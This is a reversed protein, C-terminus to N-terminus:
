EDLHLLIARGIDYIIKRHTDSLDIRHESVKLMIDTTETIYRRKFSDDSFALDQVNDLRDCLKIVLAWSSMNIMKNSLYEVKGIAKQIEFNSTLEQVLKAIVIGFNEVIDEYTVVTDEITDHLMAACFLSEINGSDKYILTYNAVRKPHEVYPSGDKRKQGEHYYTAFETAFKRRTPKIM